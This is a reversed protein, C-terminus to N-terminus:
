KAARAQALWEDFQARHQKVWEAAHRRVDEASKEGNQMRLNQASEDDASIQVHALFERAAPNKKAFDKNLVAKVTDLAFGLNKGDVITNVSNDGGPLDTRPVELWVVDKGPVLVGSIWQPMWTVYLIPQGQKYRTITDAMLAFYSGRNHTVTRELGYAKLHHETVLECGWGPNCGTLDAKGDGNADFLKAIKPDKLDGLSKVGYKDATKKDILYGQVVGPIVNGVKMMAGDGGARQYFKDHLKEWLHVTFDADGQSLAVMMTPYETEKPDKVTYGLERLGAMAIEGRFREEAIPPFIPTVSKGQGPKDPAAAMAHIPLLTVATVTLVRAMKQILNGADFLM